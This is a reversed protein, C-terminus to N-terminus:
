IATLYVQNYIQNYINISGSTLRSRTIGIMFNLLSILEATTNNFCVLIERHRLGGLDSLIDQNLLSRNLTFINPCNSSRIVALHSRENKFINILDIIDDVAIDRRNNELRLSFNFAPLPFELGFWEQIEVDIKLLKFLNELSKKSGILPKVLKNFYAQVAEESEYNSIVKRISEDIESSPPTPSSELVRDILKGVVPYLKKNGEKLNDPLYDISKFDIM